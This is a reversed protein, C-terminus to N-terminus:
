RSVERFLFRISRIRHDSETAPAEEAGVFHKGGALSAIPHAEGAESGSELYSNDFSALRRRPRNKEHVAPSASGVYKAAVHGREGGGPKTNERDVELAM